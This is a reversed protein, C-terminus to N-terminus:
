LVYLNFRSPSQLMRFLKQHTNSVHQHLPISAFRSSTSSHHFASLSTILLMILRELELMPGLMPMLVHMVITLLALFCKAITATYPWNLNIDLNCKVADLYDSGAELSDLLVGNVRGLSDLQHQLHQEYHAFM